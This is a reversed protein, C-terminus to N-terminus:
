GTGRRRARVARGMPWALVLVLGAASLLLRSETPPALGGASAVARSVNLAGLLVTVVVVLSMALNSAPGNLGKEGMLGVDNVLLLLFAAVFPLLVGNLVQALIIAPVPQVEALGFGVGTLLVFLWSGRYRWPSEPRGPTRPLLSRAAVGAALPATIASSLGAALLGYAFLSEAWEGLRARLAQGLAAFALPPDVATGVVLVGMSIVGGLVVAVCLGFRLEGLKQGRAIGSGLFLNYPVVTTGILGMVLLPSGPPLRPLLSGRVLASPEPGLRMATLLFAVGMFAVVGGLVRPVTHTTGLWLLTFAVVGAVLTLATKSLGTALVAGAVGGLLNGAEYAACGVVVAALVFIPVVVGLAGRSFRERIAEGLDRGSVVTLRASAEQLVLCALTSFVLAWLLDLGHRAGASAATTVTGPGIFAASIVSWFLVQALRKM